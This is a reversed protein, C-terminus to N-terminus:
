RFSDKWLRLQRFVDVPHAVALGSYVQVNESVESIHCRLFPNTELEDSLTSPLSPQHQARKASVQHTREALRANHPEVVNAFRLNSETFEHTCYILTEAPLKALTQLSHYLAEATGEFLRGCGAAFLTDGCLLTPPLTEKAFYAIHGQTHGPVDIVEFTHGLVELQDGGILPHTIHPIIEHAPGYVSVAYKQVLAEIGDIHDHHHHTILIGALNLRQKALTRLVADADGPDVVWAVQNDAKRLLWIYNDTFAPIPEILLVFGEKTSIHPYDYSYAANCDM